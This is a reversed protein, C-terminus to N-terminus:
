CVIKEVDDEAVLTANLKVGAASEIEPFYAFISRHDSFGLVGPLEVDPSANGPSPWGVDQNEGAYHVCGEVCLLNQGAGEEREDVTGIGVPVTELLVVQFM